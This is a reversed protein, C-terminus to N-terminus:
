HSPSFVAEAALRGSLAAGEITAPLGTDTWDGALYIGKQNTRAPLRLKSSHIDPVFTARKEKIIRYATLKESGLVNNRLLEPIILTLIEQDSLDKYADADSIVVSVFEEKHFVWHVPSNHLGIFPENFLISDSKIHVSLINSYTLDSQQDIVLNEPLAIKNLAHRPVAIVVAEASIEEGNKLLVSFGYDKKNIRVAQSSYNIVGGESTIKAELTQVLSTQLDSKPLIITSSFKGSFFIEKVIKCFIGADAKEVSTNMAGIILPTWLYKILNDNQGNEKLWVVVNKGSPRSSINALVRMMFFLAALSENFSLPKYRFLAIALNLPYFYRPAKLTYREGDSYDIHLSENLIFNSKIEVQSFLSLTEKYCGMLIHQGNDLYSNFDPDFFSTTRGGAKKTSELLLPQIGKRLLHVAASLGAIGGGIIVVKKM